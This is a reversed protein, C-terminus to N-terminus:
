RVNKGTRITSLELRSGERRREWQVLIASAAMGALMALLVLASFAKISLNAGVSVAAWHALSMGTVMLANVAVLRAWSRDRTARDSAPSLWMGVQCGVAMGLYSAPMRSFADLPVGFGMRSGSRCLGILQEFGIGSQDFLLGALMAPCGFLLMWCCRRSEPRIRRSCALWGLPFGLAVGIVILTQWDIPSRVQLLHATMLLALAILAAAAVRARHTSATVFRDACPM